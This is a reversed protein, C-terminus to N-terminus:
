HREKKLRELISSGKGRGLADDVENKLTDGCDQSAMENIAKAKDMRRELRKQREQFRSLASSTNGVKITSIKESARAVSDMTKMMRLSSEAQRVANQLQKRKKELTKLMQEQQTISNRFVEAEAAVEEIESCIKTALEEKGLDLLARADNEMNTISREREALDRKLGSLTAKLEGMSNTVQLADQHMAELDQKAFAVEHEQEISDSLESDKAKFWRVISSLVKM